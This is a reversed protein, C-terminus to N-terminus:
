GCRETLEGYAIIGRVRAVEILEAYVRLARKKV